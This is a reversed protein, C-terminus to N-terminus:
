KTAAPKPPAVSRQYQDVVRPRAGDISLGAALMLKTVAEITPPDPRLEAGVYGEGTWTPEGTHVGMRVRVPGGALGTQAAAAAAVADTASAFVAFLADGQVDVEVGRHRAVAHRLVRRHDALAEAYSRDVAQFGEAVHGLQVQGLGLFSYAWIRPADAHAETAIAIAREAAEVTRPGDLAFIAASALRVHALALDESPGEPELVARAAEYEAMLEVERPLLTGPAYTGRVIARGLRRILRGQIGRLRYGAGVEAENGGPEGAAKDVEDVLASM